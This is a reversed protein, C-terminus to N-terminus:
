ALVVKDKDKPNPINTAEDPAAVQMPIGGLKTRIMEECDNCMVIVEGCEVFEYSEVSVWGFPKGCNTCYTRCLPLTPHTVNGNYGKLRSDEPRGFGPLEVPKLEVREEKPMM